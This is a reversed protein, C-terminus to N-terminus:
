LSKKVPELGNVINNMIDDIENSSNNDNKNVKTESKM